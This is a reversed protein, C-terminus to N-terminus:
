NFWLLISIGNHSRKVGIKTDSNISGYYFQFLLFRLKLIEMFLSNISGYYFQFKNENSATGDDYIRNISGYYFQFVM